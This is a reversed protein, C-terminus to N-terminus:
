LVPPATYYHAGRRLINCHCRPAYLRRGLDRHCAFTIRNPKNRLLYFPLYVIHFHGAHFPIGYRGHRVFTRRRDMNIIANDSIFFLSTSFSKPSTNRILVAVVLPFHLVCLTHNHRRSANDIPVHFLHWAIHSFFLLATGHFSSISLSFNTRAKIGRFGMSM